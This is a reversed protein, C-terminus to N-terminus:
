QYIRKSRIGRNSYIKVLPQNSFTKTQPSKYPKAALLTLGASVTLDSPTWSNVDFRAWDELTDDFYMKGYSDTEELYGVKDYIFSQIGNVLSDRAEESNMPLGVEKQAKSSPTHTIQPRRMLYSYYGRMRFYNVVGIKNTEALLRCSYFFSQMIMDEYFMESKPPRALYQSVFFGSNLPQMPDYKKYVHSAADSRRRDTTFSHDFPDVGSVIDFNVPAKHGNRLTFKNKEKPFWAILWKGNKDPRWGVRADREEWIFNGRVIISKPLSSNYDMQENIRDLDFPSVKNDIVFMDQPILPYKRKESSLSTGTRDKRKKEFYKKAAEIDSYGYEDVFSVGEDEGRFGYCSPKFLRYLGSETQNLSIRKTPDSQNWIVQAHKGGKKEMEEVTTTFLAKGTIYSGEALTEKNFHWREVADVDVCKGFEDNYHIFQDQGDYFEERATGYNIESGLVKSYTKRVNKTDKIGPEHFRLSTAPHKDGTDIPKWIHPLRQWSKILKGFLKKGDTSNKSQIGGMVDPTKSISEYMTCTGRYSKGERRNTFYAMGFCNPDSVCYDWFYFYDRDSDIFSPLGLIKKGTKLRIPIMWYTLYFYHLGTVYEINGNNFFWFGENRKEWERQQFEYQEKEQLLDFNKPFIVPTFKQKHQPLGHGSIDKLNPPDALEITLEGVEREQIFNNYKM